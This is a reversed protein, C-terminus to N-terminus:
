RNDVMWNYAQDLEELRLLSVVRSYHLETDDASLNITLYCKSLLMVQTAAITVQLNLKFFHEM